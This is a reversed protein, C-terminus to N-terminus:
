HLFPVIPVQSMAGSKDGTSDVEEGGLVLEQCDDATLFPSIKKKRLPFLDREVLAFDECLYEVDTM